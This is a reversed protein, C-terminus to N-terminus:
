VYHNPITKVALTYLKDNLLIFALKHMAGQQLDGMVKQLPTLM